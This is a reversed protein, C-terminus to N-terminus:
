FEVKEQNAYIEVTAVGDYQTLTDTLVSTIHGIECSSLSGLNRDSNIFVSAITDLVTVSNYEGYQSLEEQFLMKLSTDLVDVSSSVEFVIPITVSCDSIRATEKDQMYITISTKEEEIQVNQQPSFARQFVFYTLVALMILIFVNKFM